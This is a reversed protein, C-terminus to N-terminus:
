TADEDIVFPVDFWQNGIKVQLRCVVDNREGYKNWHVCEIGTPFLQDPAPVLRFMSTPIQAKNHKNMNIM